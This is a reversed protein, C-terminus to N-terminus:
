ELPHSYCCLGRYNSSRAALVYDYDAREFYRYAGFVTFCDATPVFYRLWAPNEGSFDCIRTVEAFYHYRTSCVNGDMSVRPNLLCIGLGVGALFLLVSFPALFYVPKREEEELAPAIFGWLELVILPFAAVIGAVFSIQMTQLFPEMIGGYVLKGGLKDVIPKVPAAIINFIPDALFWTLSMGVVLYVVCRLIRTRLEALHEVLEMQAGAPNNQLSLM